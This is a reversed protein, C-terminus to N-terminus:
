VQDPASLGILRREKCGKKAAKKAPAKKKAAATKEGGHDHDPHDCEEGHEHDHELM